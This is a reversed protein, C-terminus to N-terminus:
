SDKRRTGLENKMRVKHIAQTVRLHRSIQEKGIQLHGTEICIIFCQVDVTKVSMCFVGSM